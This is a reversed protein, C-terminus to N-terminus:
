SEEDDEIVDDDDYNYVITEKGFIMLLSVPLTIFAYTIDCGRTIVMPAVTLLLMMIGCLRQKNFYTKIRM